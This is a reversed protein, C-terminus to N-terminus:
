LDWKVHAIGNGGFASQAIGHQLIPLACLALPAAPLHGLRGDGLSHSYRSVSAKRLRGQVSHSSNQLLAKFLFLNAWISAPAFWCRQRGSGYLPWSRCLAILMADSKRQVISVARAKSNDAGRSKELPQDDGDDDNDSRSNNSSHRKRCNM